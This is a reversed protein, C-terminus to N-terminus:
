RMQQINPLVYSSIAVAVCVCASYREKMKKKWENVVNIVQVPM